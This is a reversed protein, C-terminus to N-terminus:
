KVMKEIKQSSIRNVIKDRNNDQSQLEKDIDTNNINPNSKKLLAKLIKM